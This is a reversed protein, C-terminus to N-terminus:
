TRDIVLGPVIWWALGIMGTLFLGNRVSSTGGYGGVCKVRASGDGHFVTPPVM